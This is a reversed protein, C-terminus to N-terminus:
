KRAGNLFSKFFDDGLVPDVRLILLILREIGQRDVRGNLRILRLKLRGTQSDFYYKHLVIILVSFVASPLVSLM